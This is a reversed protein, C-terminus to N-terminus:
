VDVPSEEREEGLISNMEEECVNWDLLSNSDLVFVKAELLSSRVEEADIQQPFRLFPSLLPFFTCFILRRHGLRYDLHGYRSLRGDIMRIERRRRRPSVLSEESCRRSNKTWHLVESRCQRGCGVLQCQRLFRSSSDPRWQVSFCKSSVIRGGNSCCSNRRLFVFNKKRLQIEEDLSLAALLSQLVISALEHEPRPLQFDISHFLTSGKERCEVLLAADVEAFLSCERRLRDVFMASGCVSGQLDEFVRSSHVFLDPCGGSGECLVVPIWNDVVSRHVVLFLSCEVSLSM